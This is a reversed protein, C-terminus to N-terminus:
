GDAQEVLRAEAERRKLLGDPGKSEWLRKMATIQAAIERYDRRSVLDRLHRMEVRSASALSSGRNFVLSVLAAQANPPAVRYRSLHPQHARLIPCAHRHQVGGEAMDWRILIDRVKPIM